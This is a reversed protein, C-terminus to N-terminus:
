PPRRHQLRVRVTAPKVVIGLGTTDLAVQHSLSDNALIVTTDTRIFAVQSVFQRPGSIEVREPEIRVRPQLVSDVGVVRIESRVPVRKTLTQVFELRVSKPRIDTVRANGMNEPLVVDNRSLSLVITDPTDANISRTITASRGELRGLEAATGQVVAIMEAPQNRLALSTDLRLNLKVPVSTATPEKQTIVYWLLVALGLSVAKLWLNETARAAFNKTLAKRRSSRTEADPPLTNQTDAV